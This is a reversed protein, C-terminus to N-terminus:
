IIWLVIPIIAFPAAVVFGFKLFSNRNFPWVQMDRAIKRLSNLAEFDEISTGSTSGSRNSSSSNLSKYRKQITTLVKQKADKMCSSLAYLPIFFAISTIIVYSLVFLANYLDLLPLKYVITNSLIGLSAIVGFIILGLYLKEAQRMLSGLGGSGDPHFPQINVKFSFLMKLILFASYLRLALYTMLYYLFFAHIPILWGANYQSADYWSGTTQTVNATLLSAAVGCVYPLLVFSKENLKSQTFRRVKKWEKDSALLVGSEVLHTLTSPFAGFYSGALYILTPFALLFQNWWGIDHALDLSLSDNYFSGELGTAIAASFSLLAAVSVSTYRSRIAFSGIFRGLPDGQLLSFLGLEKDHLTQTETLSSTM